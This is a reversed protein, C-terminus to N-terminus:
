EIPFTAVELVGHGTKKVMHFPAMMLGKFLGFVKHDSSDISKKTHDYLEIPSKVIETTGKAFKDVPKPLDAAHVIGVM